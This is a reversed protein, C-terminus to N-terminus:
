RNPGSEARMAALVSSAYEPHRFRLSLTGRSPSYGSLEAPLRRSLSTGLIFGSLGGATLTALSIVVLLSPDQLGETWALLLGLTSVLFAGVQMGRVSGRHQQERLRQQCADCVPIALELPQSAPVLIGLLADGRSTIQFSM